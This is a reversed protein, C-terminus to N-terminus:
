LQLCQREWLGSKFLHFCTWLNPLPTESTGECCHVCEVAERGDPNSPFLQYQRPHHEAEQAAFQILSVSTVLVKVKLLWVFM